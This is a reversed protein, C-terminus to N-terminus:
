YNNKWDVFRDFAARNIRRGTNYSNNECIIIGHITRSSSSSNYLYIPGGSQGGTWDGLTTFITDEQTDIKDWTKWMTGSTKEGPYGVMNLKYNVLNSRTGFAMWGVRDGINESLIVMGYDYKYNDNQTYGTVSLLYTASVGGYPDSSGNRGPFFRVSSHWGRKPPTSYAASSYICHAATMVHRPGVLTGSCIKSRGSADRFEIQGMTRWPWGTTSTIRKRDDSGFVRDSFPDVEIDLDNFYDGAPNYGDSLLEEHLDNADSYVAGDTLSFESSENVDYGVLDWPNAQLTISSMLITSFIIPKLM